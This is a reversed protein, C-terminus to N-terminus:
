DMGEVVDRFEELTFARLTETTANGRGALDPRTDAMSTIPMAMRRLTSTDAPRGTPEINPRLYSDKM